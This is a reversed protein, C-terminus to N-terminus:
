EVFVSVKYTAVTRHSKNGLLVFLESGAPLNGFFREDDDMDRCGPADSAAYVKYALSDGDAQITVRNVANRFKIAVWRTQLPWEFHGDIASAQPHVLRQPKGILDREPVCPNNLVGDFTVDKEVFQDKAWAWYENGLEHYRSEPPHLMAEAINATRGGYALLDALNGLPYARRTGDVTTSFLHVWFDQADYSAAENPSTLSTGVSRLQRPQENVRHMSTSSNVAAEAMGEHIWPDPEPPPTTPGGPPIAPHYSAFGHQVAHFLEHRAIRRLETPSFPAAPDICVRIGQLSHSYRGGTPGPTGDDRACAHHLNVAYVRVRTFVCGNRELSPEPFNQAMYTQYADALERALDAAPCDALAICTVQFEAVGGCTDVGAGDDGLGAAASLALPALIEQEVLGFTMGETALGVVTVAYVNRGADYAGTMEDWVLGTRPGDDVHSAPMLVDVALRTTDAGAPVPLELVFSTGPNSAVTCVAGVEYYTGIPTGSTIPPDTPIPVETIWVPLAAPLTGAPASLTFGSPSAVSGGDVLTDTPQSAPQCAPPPPETIDYLYVGGFDHVGAVGGERRPVGVIATEEHLAVADAFSDNAAGDSATLKDHEMWIDSSSTERRFVFAAGQDPNFGVHKTRAGVLLTDGALALASGFDDFRAAESTTVRDVQSWQGSSPDRRFVYAAGARQDGDQAEASPAGVVATDGELALPAGFGDNAGGTETAALRTVFVWQDPDIPDRGFLYASGENDASFSYPPAAGILLTDGDLVVTSGFLEDGPGSDVVDAELITAVKGWADAGGRDREFVMVMQEGAATTASAALLDGDLALSIGFDGGTDVVEDSIRATAGWHDTGGQDREFLYVAGDQAIGDRLGTPVSIAVTGGDVALSRGFSFFDVTDHPVLRKEDVWQDTVPNREFVYAAGAYISPPILSEGPAGVVLLDGSVALPSGFKAWAVEGTTVLRTEAATEISPAAGVAAMEDSEGDDGSAPGDTCAALALVLAIGVRIKGRGEDTSTM